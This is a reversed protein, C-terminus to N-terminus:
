FHYQLWQTLRLLINGSSRKGHLGQNRIVQNHGYMLLGVVVADAASLNFKLDPKALRVPLNFVRKALIHSWSLSSAGGTIVIGASLNKYCDVKKIEAAIMMFLEEYRAEAVEFIMKKAVQQQGDVVGPVDIVDNLNDDINNLQNIKINEAVSVPTRLAVALDNTVQDGGIPIVASHKITGDIFVAIDTTGAGIDVLCVGLDKEDQTIVARSAALANFVIDNVQVDCLHICKIINQVASSSSTVLHVNAELRVGSMGVPNHIGDQKDIIFEQPLVHLIKQDSPIQVARAAEVVRDVDSRAVEKQNRIAVIGHSNMASIHSGSLSIYVAKVHLKAATEALAIAKKIADVTLDINVVVGRKVGESLSSGQGIIEINKGATIKGVLCSIKNTGIDLVAIITSDSKKM